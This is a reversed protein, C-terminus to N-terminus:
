EAVEAYALLVAGYVLPAAILGEFAEDSEEAPTM